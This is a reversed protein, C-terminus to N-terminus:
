HSSCTGTCLVVIVRKNNFISEREYLVDQGLKGREVGELERSGSKGVGLDM